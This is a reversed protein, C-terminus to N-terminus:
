EVHAVGPQLKIHRGGILWESVYIVGDAGVALGHPSNFKGTVLRDSAVIADAGDSTNPWGQQKQIDPQEGVYGILADKDDLMALRGFLEAIILRDGDVAFASPSNLVGAGFVRRFQGDLGFVQVQANGRDAVYLEPEGGRRDIFIAHPCRFIGGPGDQGNVSDLYGGDADFHHIYGQGYGDAVWIDGTGGHRREDVVVSTPAYSGGGLYASHPPTELRATLQGAMTLKVVQGGHPGAQSVWKTADGATSPILKSGNDAVWLFETDGDIVSTIGHAEALPAACSQLAQGAANLHMLVPDRTDLTVLDGTATVTIDHHAWGDSRYPTQAWDESWSYERGPVGVLAEGGATM